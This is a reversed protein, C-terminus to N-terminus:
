LFDNAADSIPYEQAEKRRGSPVSSTMPYKRTGQEKFEERSRPGQVNSKGGQAKNRTGQISAFEATIKDLDIELNEERAAIHPSAAMQRKYTEPYIKSIPNSLSRRVWESDTGDAYGAQVPKWYGAQLAEAIIAAVVTKGIGTGIGTIFIPQM